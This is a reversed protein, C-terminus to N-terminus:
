QWHRLWGWAVAGGVMGAAAIAVMAWRTVHRIAFRRRTDGREVEIGIPTYWVVGGHVHAPTTGRSWRLLVARGVPRIHWGHLLMADGRIERVQLDPTSRTGM